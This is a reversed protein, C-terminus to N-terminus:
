FLGAEKQETETPYNILVAKRPGYYVFMSGAAVAHAGSKRVAKVMDTMGGAGGCCIVPLGTSSTAEFITDLDYGNMMGDKDISNLFIEGAGLSAALKVQETVSKRTSRQGCDVFCETKGLISKRYDISVVVSQSGAFKVVDEILKTNDSLATNLIIKEFGIRFLREADELSKIGGGYSLPMFAETAIDELLEFDIRQNKHSSIDLLCLEDAEEENFIKVANIPDGIYTRKKFKVTKVLYGDEILLCPILRPKLYM